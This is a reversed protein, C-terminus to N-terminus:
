ATDYITNIRADTVFSYFLVMTCAIMNMLKHLHMVIQATKLELMDALATFMATLLLDIFRM